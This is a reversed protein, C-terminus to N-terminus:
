PVVPVTLTTTASRGATDTVTLRVTYTGAVAFTHNLLKGGNPTAATGDGWTWDYTTISQGSSPTSPTADFHVTNTGDSIDPAAPSFGFAAVIQSSAATVTVGASVTGTQGAEDTVVLTVTFTGARTYPHSVTVGTGTSGDGFDWAYASLTHGAGPTSSSANFFVDQNVGPALPSSTFRATPAVAGAAAVTVGNAFRATQGTDDTVVLAVTFTGATTFTHNTSATTGSFSTGDGFDWAYTTLTRGTAASSGSANFFVVQGVVPATPSAVFSATTAGGGGGGGGGSSVSVAQSTTTKQGADDLVSLTVNYTGAATFVHSVLFGSASTGDGFIWSYQTITRGTAARSADANFVVTQGAAPSGPSFVFSATPAQSQAIALVQSTSAAVGRANTVTLTATFSSATTYTHTTTQGSGSTADGFTWAYSTIASASTPCANNVLPGGCSSSADFTVPTNTTVTTPSFVFAPVPTDAPPLIVGPPVLRILVSQSVSTQFASGSASYTAVIEVCTGPLSGCTGFEGGAPSPPATYVVADASGDAKTVLNRASLTGYDQAVGNVRMDLRIAVDSQAKGNPGFATVRIRSQSGGDQSISDPEAVVSISVAFDSPGTLPPAETQHVGCGVLALTALTVAVATFPKM